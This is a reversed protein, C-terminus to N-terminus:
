ESRLLGSGMIRHVIPRQDSEEIVLRALRLQSVLDCSARSLARHVIGIEQQARNPINILEGTRPKLRCRAVVPGRYLTRQPSTAIPTTGSSVHRRDHAHLGVGAWGSRSAQASRTRTCGSTPLLAARAISPRNRASRGFSARNQMQPLPREDRRGVVPGDPISLPSPSRVGSSPADFRSSRSSSTVPSRAWSAKIM